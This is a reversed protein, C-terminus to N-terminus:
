KCNHSICDHLLTWDFAFFSFGFAGLHKQGKYALTGFSLLKPGKAYLNKNVNLLLM